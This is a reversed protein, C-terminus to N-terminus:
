LSNLAEMLITIGKELDEMSCAFSMRVCNDNGFAIGPVLGIQAEELLYRCFTGSDNIIGSKCTKGFFGSVDFFAYFAGDIPPCFIGDIKNLEAVIFDRRKSFEEVMMKIEPVERTLAAVSAAQAISNPNSTSHSQLNRALRILDKPGAAFGIRWGTMAFAKSVGNVTIVSDKMWPISAMPFHKRGDFIIKEYIEDSIVFINKDRLVEALATIEEESYVAGTPNSPSNFIFGKTKPTIANRLQAPTIKYHKDAGADILVTKAGALKIMEPYSVWYPTQIIVEDDPNCISMLVNYISHKAGNSILINEPSYDLNNDNKFKAAVAKLLDPAGESATYRTYNNRIAKIGAEKIFDPTNFDPEGASFSLVKKGESKLKKILATIALTRSEEVSSVLFSLEKM